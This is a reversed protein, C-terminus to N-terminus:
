ASSLTLSPLSGPTGPKMWKNIVKTTLRQLGYRMLRCKISLPSPLWSFAVNFIRATHLATNMLGVFHQWQQPDEVVEDTFFLRCNHKVVSRWVAPTYTVGSPNSALLATIDGRTEFLDPPHKELQKPKLMATLRRLFFSSSRGTHYADRFIPHVPPMFHPGIHALPYSRREVSLSWRPTAM